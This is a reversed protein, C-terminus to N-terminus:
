LFIVQTSLHDVPRELLTDFEVLHRVCARLFPANLCYTLKFKFNLFGEKGRVVRRVVDLQQYTHIFSESSDNNKLYPQM